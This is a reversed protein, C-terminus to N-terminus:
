CEGGYVCLESVYGVPRGNPGRVKGSARRSNKTTRISGDSVWWERGDDLDLTFSSAAVDRAEGAVEVETGSYPSEYVLEVRDGDSFGDKRADYTMQDYCGRLSGETPEDTTDAHTQQAM